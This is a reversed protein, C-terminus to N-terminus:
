GGQREKEENEGERGGGEEEGGAGTHKGTTYGTCMGEEEEEEEKKKSWEEEAVYQSMRDTLHSQTEYFSEEHEYDWPLEVNMEFIDNWAELAVYERLKEGTDILLPSPDHKVAPMMREVGGNIIDREMTFLGAEQVAWHNPYMRMAKVVAAPGHVFGPQDFPPESSSPPSEINSLTQLAFMAYEIYAVTDMKRLVVPAYTAAKERAGGLALLAGWACADGKTNVEGESAMTAVTELHEAMLDGNGPVKMMEILLDWASRTWEFLVDPARIEGWNDYHQDYDDFYPDMRWGPYKEDLADYTKLLGDFVCEASQKLMESPIHPVLRRLIEFLLQTYRLEVDDKRGPSKELPKLRAHHARGYITWENMAVAQVAPYLIRATEEGTEERKVCKLVTAVISYRVDFHCSSSVDLLPFFHLLRRANGKVGVQVSSWLALRRRESGTFLVHPVLVGNYRRPIQEVRLGDGHADPSGISEWVKELATSNRPNFGRIDTQSYPYDANNRDDTALTILRVCHALGPQDDARDQAGAAYRFSRLTERWSTCVAACTAVDHPLLAESELVIALIDPPLGRAWDPRTASRTTVPM